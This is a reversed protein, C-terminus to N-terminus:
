AWGGYKERGLCGTGMMWRDKGTTKFTNPQKALLGLRPLSGDDIM